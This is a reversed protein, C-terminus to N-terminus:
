LVNMSLNTRIPKTTESSFNQFIILSLSQQCHRRCVGLSSFSAKTMNAGIWIDPEIWFFITVISIVIHKVYVHVCGFILMKEWSDRNHPLQIHRNVMVKHLFELIEVELEHTISCLDPTWSSSVAYQSGGRTYPVYITVIAVLTYCIRLLPHEKNNVFFVILFLYTKSLVSVFILFFFTWIVEYYIQSLRSLIVFSSWYLYSDHLFM